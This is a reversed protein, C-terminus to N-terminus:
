TDHMWVVLASAFLLTLPFCQFPSWLGFLDMRLSVPEVEGSKGQFGSLFSSFYLPIGNSKSMLLYADTVVGAGM